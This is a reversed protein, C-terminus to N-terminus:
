RARPCSSDPSAGWRRGRIKDSRAIVRAPRLTRYLAAPGADTDPLIASLRLRSAYGAGPDFLPLDALEVDTGTDALLPVRSVPLWMVHGDAADTAPGYDLLERESWDRARSFVVERLAVALRDTPRAAAVEPPEDRRKAIVLLAPDFDEPITRLAALAPNPDVESTGEPQDSVLAEGDM